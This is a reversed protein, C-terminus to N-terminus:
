PTVAMSELVRRALAEDGEIRARGGTLARDAPWRGGTLCLFTELDCRLSAAHPAGPLAQADAGALEGRRGSVAVTFPGTAWERPTQVFFTVRAGDPAAARKAVVFPMAARMREFTLRAVDGHLHGPRGVARRIDQEHYFCDLVRIAIHDRLRARGFPTDVEQEWGAEDVGRLHKLRESTLDRFEALIEEPKRGRRLEIQAENLSGVVNRVHPPWRDEPLPEPQPRELLRSEIGCIHAVQDKVTWGPCETDRGWDAPGLTSCLEDIQSWVQELCDLVREAM